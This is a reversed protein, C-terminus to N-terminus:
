SAGGQLEELRARLAAADAEEIPQRLAGRYLELAEEIRGMRDLSAAWGAWVQWAEDPQSLPLAREFLEAAEQYRGMRGCLNALHVVPEPSQPEMAMAERYRQAAAALRGLNHLALGLHVRASVHGPFREILRELLEAARELEGARLFSLGREYLALADAAPHSM